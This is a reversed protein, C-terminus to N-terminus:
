PRLEEFEMTYANRKFVFGTHTNPVTFSDVTAGSADKLIITEGQSLNFIARRVNTVDEPTNNGYVTISEGPLIKDGEAFPYNYTGDTLVFGTLSVEAPTLNTITVSDEDRASYSSIYIKNM